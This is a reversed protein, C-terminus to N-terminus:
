ISIRCNKNEIIKYKLIFDDLIICLLYKGQAEWHYHRLM